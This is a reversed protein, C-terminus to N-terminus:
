PDRGALRRRWATQGLRRVARGDARRATGGAQRRLRRDRGRDAVRRALARLWRGPPVAGSPEGRAPRARPPGAGCALRGLGRRPPPAPGPPRAAAGQRRRPPAGRGRGGPPRLPYPRRRRPGGLRCGGRGGPCAPDGLEAILALPPALRGRGPRPRVDRRDYGAVTAEVASRGDPPREAAVTMRRGDLDVEVSGHRDTRYVAAGAARLRAIVAPSPHGYANDAGVSIIALAPRVADVFAATSSTSSGHHAVKLLDVHPLGRAVLTPEVANEVDGTLLIREAGFTGLLVISVNNIASGDDSPTVPVAGADPWLVRLALDDITLRDGTQLRRSPRAMERLETELARYAPGPGEMGPEFIAGVQYRAVLAPLGGAHDEHPHTLVVVDLRRDWAPVRADLAELLPGPAPGGDVLLRSGRDGEVLIADGQGVDLVTVRVVGPLLAAARTATVGLSVIVLGVIGLTAVVRPSLLGQRRGRPGTLPRARAVPRPRAFRAPRAIAEVRPRTERSGTRDGRLVLWGLPAAAVLGAVPGLSPPLTVSAFPVAAAVRVIAIMAGLVAGAPLGVIAAVVPPLGVAGAALGGVAALAATGMAPVVLPVIAINALPAVLSLRGFDALVLPLTAAEAALALALSGVLLDPVAAPIRSRLTAQLPGAWALLGATAAASLQLGPDLVSAPDAVVLGTVVWGLAAAASSARGTSRIVLALGAMAGARVVSPSAGVFVVFVTIAAVLAFRGLRPRIRLALPALFAIVLAVNWGSIAVVHSVGAATFNAALDRDVRERLGVVMGAALGAAPEPVAVAIADAVGRRLPEVPSGGPLREIARVFLHPHDGPRSPARLEGDVRVRDGAGLVPYPPVTLAVEVDGDGADLRAIAPVGADRPSSVSEITASWPGNGAPIPLDGPVPATAAIRLALVAAGISALLWGNGARRGVALAAISGVAVVVAGAGAPGATPEAWTAAAAAAGVAATVVGLAIWGARPM